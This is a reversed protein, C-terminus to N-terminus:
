HKPPTNVVPAGLTPENAPKPAAAFYQEDMWFTADKKVADMTSAVKQQRLNKEIEPTVVKLDSHTHKVVQFFILAQPLDIPESVEGDKLSFAVKEMDARMGGHRVTRAEPEIIIDGPAKFDETVKKIDTGAVVEKRIAEARAKAEEPPLGVSTAAAPHAPDAKAEVAKKRIVFQRVSLEDFDTAHAAYYQQVDAPTVQAQANIEEFAVQAELQQKQFALKHVFEPSQDLHHLEARQSLAVVTAYQEGLSKKGQTAISRQTQPNLSDILRDMDAKTFKQDGVKLVVKDAPEPTELSPSAPKSAPPAEAPAPPKSTQAWAAGTPMGILFLSFLLKSIHRWCNQDM